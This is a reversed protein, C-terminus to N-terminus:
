IPSYGWAGVRGVIERVEDGVPFFFTNFTKSFKTKVERADQNISDTILDVHETKDLCHDQGQSRDAAHIGGLAIGASLKM